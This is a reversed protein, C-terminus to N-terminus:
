GTTLQDETLLTYTFRSIGREKFNRCLQVLVKHDDANQAVQCGFSYKGIYNTTGKSAARHINIGFYGMDEPGQEPRWDKDNDRYVVVSGTQVLAPHEPNGKHFGLTYANVYQGPKLVATGKPNMPTKLGTFGSVTTMPYALIRLQNETRRYEDLAHITNAGFLNDEALPNGNLGRFIWKNLRQQKVITSMPELNLSVLRPQKFMLVMTDSFEDSRHNASRIGIINLNDEFFQYGLKQLIAQFESASPLRM